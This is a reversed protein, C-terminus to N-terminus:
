ACDPSIAVEVKADAFSGSPVSGAAMRGTVARMQAANAVAEALENEDWRKRLPNWEGDQMPCAAGPGGGFGELFGLFAGDLWPPTWCGSRCVHAGVAGGLGLDLGERWDVVDVRGAMDEPLDCIGNGLWGPRVWTAKRRKSGKLWARLWNDCM